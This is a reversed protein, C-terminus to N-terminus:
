IRGGSRITTLSKYVPIALLAICIGTVASVLLLVPLYSVAAWTRTMICAAFVQGINHAAAGAVSVGFLSFARFSRMVLMAGLALIGGSLSFLFSMLNGGFAFAIVCRTVVIMLTPVAGFLYVAILTVVNALGLRM